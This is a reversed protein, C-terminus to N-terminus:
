RCREDLLGGCHLVLIDTLEQITEVDRLLGCDYLCLFLETKTYSRNLFFLIKGGVDVSILCKLTKQMTVPGPLLTKTHM